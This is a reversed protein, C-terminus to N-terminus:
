TFVQHGGANFTQAAMDQDAMCMPIVDLADRKKSRKKHGAIFPVYVTGLTEALRQTFHQGSLHIIGIEGDCKILASSVNAIVVEDFPGEFDLINFDGRAIQVM